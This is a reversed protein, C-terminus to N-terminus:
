ASPKWFGRMLLFGVPALLTLNLTLSAWIAPNRDV